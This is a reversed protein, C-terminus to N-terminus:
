DRFGPQPVFSDERGSELVKRLEKGNFTVDVQAGARLVTWTTSDKSLSLIAASMAARGGGSDQGDIRTLKDGDRLGMAEVKGGSKIGGLVICDYKRLELNVEIDRALNVRM